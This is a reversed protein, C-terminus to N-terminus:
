HEASSKQQRTGRDREMAHFRESATRAPDRILGLWHTALELWAAKDISTTVKAAMLRCEEAKARYQDSKTMPYHERVEAILSSLPLNNGLSHHFMRRVCRAFFPRLPVFSESRLGPGRVDVTATHARQAGFASM